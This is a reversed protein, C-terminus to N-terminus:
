HAAEYAQRIEAPIRGRESVDYGNSRAWDRIRATDTGGSRRAASGSGRRRRGAVKRASGVYLALTDRMKAANKTSLDIEYSVGDLSFTVTEDADKGDIDDVLEVKLRQAVATNRESLPCTARGASDFNEVVALEASHSNVIGVM